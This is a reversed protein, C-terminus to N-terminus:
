NYPQLAVLDSLSYDAANVGATAALQVKGPTVDSSVGQRNAGSLIFNVRASDNERKANILELLEATTFRGPEVGAELALQAAGASNAASTTPQNAASLYYAARNADNERKADIAALLDTKSVSGPQVGAALAIQAEGPTVNASPSAAFASGAVTALILASTIITKM